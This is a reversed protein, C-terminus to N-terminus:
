QNILWALAAGFLYAAICFLIKQKLPLSNLRIRMYKGQKLLASCIM